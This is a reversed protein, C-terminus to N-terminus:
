TWDRPTSGLEKNVSHRAMFKKGDKIKPRSKGEDM